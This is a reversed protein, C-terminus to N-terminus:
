TCCVPLQHPQHHTKPRWVFRNIESGACLKNKLHHPKRQGSKSLRFGPPLQAQAAHASSLMFKSLDKLEDVGDPHHVRHKRLRFACLNPLIRKPTITVPKSWLILGLIHLRCAWPICVINPRFASVSSEVVECVCYKHAHWLLCHTGTVLLAAVYRLRQANSETRFTRM